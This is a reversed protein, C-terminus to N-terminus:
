PATAQARGPRILLGLSALVKAPLVTYYSGFATHDGALAARRAGRVAASWALRVEARRAREAAYTAADRARRGAVGLRAAIEATTATGTAWGGPRCRRALGLSALRRLLVGVSGVSAHLVRALEATTRAEDGLERLARAASKGIGGWRAIDDGLCLEPQGTPGEECGANGFPVMLRYTTARTPTPAEHVKAWGAAVLRRLSRRATCLSVGGALALETLAAAVVPGGRAWAIAYLGEAVALDTAGSMGKWPVSGLATRWAGLAELAEERSRVPLTGPHSARYATAKHWLRELERRRWRASRRRWTAGLANAQDDLVAALWEPRFGAGQAFLALAMRGHSPSEYGAAQHGERLCRWMRPSLGTAGVQRLARGLAGAPAPTVLAALAGQATAPLLLSVPAGLRHASLPPRVGNSRVDLGERRCWDTLSSWLRQDPGLNAFLHRHCPRGSAVLVVAVGNARLASVLHGFAAQAHSAQTPSRGELDLDIALMGPRPRVVFPGGVLDAIPARTGADNAPGLRFGWSDETVARALADIPGVAPLVGLAAQSNGLCPHRQASTPGQM